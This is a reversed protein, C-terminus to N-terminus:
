QGGQPNAAPISNTIADPLYGNGPFIDDRVWLIVKERNLPAKRFFAWDVWEQSFMLSWTPGDGISFASGRYQTSVEPKFESTTILMSPPNAGTSAGPLATVFQTDRQDRLMWHLYPDNLGIVSVDALNVAGTKMRSFDDITQKLLRGYSPYVGWQWMEFAPPKNLGVASWGGSFTVVLLMVSFGSIWQSFALKSSWGFGILYTTALLLVFGGFVVAVRKVFENQEQASTPNNMNTFLNILAMGIFVMVVLSLASFGYFWKQEGVEVGVLVWTLFRVSIVWLPIFMWVLDNIRAAPYVLGLIFAAAWWFCLFLGVKDRRFIMWISGVLGLFLVMPNYVLVGPLLTFIGAESAASRGTWNQLMLIPSSFTTGLGLPVFLFMTGGLVATMLAPLLIKIGDQKFFFGTAQWFGLEPVEENESRDEVLFFRALVIAIILGLVGLWVDTGCLLALGLAVGLAVPKRNILFALALLIFVVAMGLSDAQRAAAWLSPDIILLWALLLAPIKGIKERLLFVPLVVLSGVVAPILRALFENSGFMFFLLATGNVYLPQSGVLAPTGHVISLAQLAWSAEYNNLSLNGLNVLRLVLGAAFALLYLIDEFTLVRAKM